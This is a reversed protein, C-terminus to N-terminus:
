KAIEGRLRDCIVDGYHLIFNVFDYYEKDKQAEGGDEVDIYTFMFKAYVEPKGEWSEGIITLPVVDNQDVGESRFQDNHIIVRLLRGEIWFDSFTSM